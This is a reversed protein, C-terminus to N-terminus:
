LYLMAALLVVILLLKICLHRVELGVSAVSVSNCSSIHAAFERNKATLDNKPVLEEVLIDRHKDFYKYSVFGGQMYLPLNTKYLMEDFRFCDVERFHKVRKIM